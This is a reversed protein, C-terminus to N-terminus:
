VVSKRDINNKSIFYYLTNNGVETHLVAGTSATLPFAANLVKNEERWNLLYKKQGLPTFQNKASGNADFFISDIFTGQTDTISASFNASANNAKYIIFNNIDAVLTGGEPFFEISINKNKVVDNGTLKTKDYVIINRLYVNGSDASLMNKTFMRLQLCATEVSDSLKFNGAGCGDFLPYQKEALLNGMANYLGAYLTTSNISPKGNEFVYAKFWIDEGPLYVEKDLHAYINESYQPFATSNFGVFALLLVTQVITRTKM